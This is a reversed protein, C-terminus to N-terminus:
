GMMSIIGKAVLYVIAGYAIWGVHLALNLLTLLGVIGDIISIFDGFFIITKLILYLASGILIYIPMIGIYSFAIISATALDLFGLLKVIM